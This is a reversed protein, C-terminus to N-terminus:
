ESPNQLFLGFDLINSFFDKEEIKSSIGNVHILVSRTSFGKPIKLRKCKEQVEKIISLPIERDCFKVECIYLVRHKTQIMFDIQCGEQRSGKLQLYPGSWIVDDPTLNLHKFLAKENNCVLNEFQLGLISKWGKPLTTIKGSKIRNKYPQIYRLYFRIYNDSIRYYRPKKEKEKAIDWSMDRTLFGVEVLNDLQDSFNGTIMKDLEQAIEKMNLKYNAIKEIIQKYQKDKKMFLDSFIQDFENFLIGTSQFCLNLLNQESTLDTRIEELYRPVGGTVSLIKFKEYSDNNDKGKWFKNCQHLPLEKLYLQHSLRGMFGTSSLINDEIWSSNSGSIILVLKPNKKFYNDWVMKLKPLFTPDLCGMWTIEDLIVLVRGKSCHLALDTFLDGWDDFGSSPIRLNRMQRAFEMRQDKANVGKEPPIGSLLYSTTFSKSFEEALRSKGIRRRGRIVVLSAIAKKLLGKLGELEKKRGIFNSM